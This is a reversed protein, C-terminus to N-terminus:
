VALSVSLRQYADRSILLLIGGIFYFDLLPIFYFMESIPFVEAHRPLYEAFITTDNLTLFQEYQKEVEVCVVCM